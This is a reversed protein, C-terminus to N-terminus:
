LHGRGCSVRNSELRGLRWDAERRSQIEILDMLQLLVALMELVMLLHMLLSVRVRCGALLDRVWVGHSHRPRQTIMETGLSGHSIEITFVMWLEQFLLWLLVWILSWSRM